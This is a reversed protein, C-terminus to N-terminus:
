QQKWCGGGRRRLKSFALFSKSYLASRYSCGKYVSCPSTCCSVRPFPSKLPALSSCHLTPFFAPLFSSIVTFNFDTLIQVTKILCKFLKLCFWHYEGLSSELVEWKTELRMNSLKRMLNYLLYIVHLVRHGMYHVIVQSYQIDM